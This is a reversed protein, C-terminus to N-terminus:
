QTKEDLVGLAKKRLQRQMEEFEEFIDSNHEFDSRLIRKELQEFEEALSKYKKKEPLEKANDKVYKALKYAARIAENKCQKKDLAQKVTEAYKDGKEIEKLVRAMFSSQIEPPAQTSLYKIAKEKDRLVRATKWVARGFAVKQKIKKKFKSIFKV